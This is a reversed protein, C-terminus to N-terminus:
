RGNNNRRIEREAEKNMKDAYNSFKIIEVLPMEILDKYTLAGKYYVM